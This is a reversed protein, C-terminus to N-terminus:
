ARERKRRAARRAGNQALMKLIGPWRHAFDSIKAVLERIDGVKVQSKKGESKALHSVLKAITM